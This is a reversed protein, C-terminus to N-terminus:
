LVRTSVPGDLQGPVNAVNHPAVYWEYLGAPICLSTEVFRVVATVTGDFDASAEFAFGTPAASASDADLTQSFTGNDTIAAGSVEDSGTLVPTISGATRGSITLAIRQKGTLAGTAQSLRGSSGATHTADGTGIAWGTGETWDATTAFDGNLALDVRTSDGDVVTAFTGPTVPIYDGVIHEAGLTEGDPVRFLLVKSWAPDTM